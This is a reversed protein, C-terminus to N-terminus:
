IWIEKIFYPNIKDMANLGEVFEYDNKIAENTILLANTRFFIEMSPLHNGFYENTNKVKWFRDYIVEPNEKMIKKFVYMCSKYIDIDFEYKIMSCLDKLFNTYELYLKDFEKEVILNPINRYKLLISTYMTKKNEEEIEKITSKLCYIFSKDRNATGIRKCITDIKEVGDEFIEIEQKIERDPELLSSDIKLSTMNIMLEWVDSISLESNSDKELKCWIDEFSEKEDKTLYLILPMGCMCNGGCFYYSNM